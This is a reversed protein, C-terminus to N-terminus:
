KVILKRVGKASHEIYIGPNTPTPVLNGHLNYYSLPSYEPPGPANSYGIGTADDTDDGVLHLDYAGM